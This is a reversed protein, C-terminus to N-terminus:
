WDGSSGGSGSSGGGFGGFSSDSDYSSSGSGYSSSSYSARRRRDEEEEEEEKRRKWKRRIDDIKSLLDNLQKSRKLLDAKSNKFSKVSSDIEDKEGSRGWRKYREMDDLASKIKSDARSLESESSKISGLTSIATKGSSLVRELKNMYQDYDRIALDVNTRLSDFAQSGLMSLKQVEEKDVPKDVSYGYKKIAEYALLAEGLIQLGKLSQSEWSKIDSVYRQINSKKSKYDSISSDLLEQYKKLNELYEDKKVGKGLVTVDTFKNSVEKVSKLISILRDSQIDVSEPIQKRIEEIQKIALDIDANIKKNRHRRYILYGFPAILASVLLSSLIFDWFDNVKNDWERQEKAKKEKLWQVKNSYAEDGLEAHIAELAAMTGEYYKGEKFNPKVVNSLIRSCQLDTLFPEM